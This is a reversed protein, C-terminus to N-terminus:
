GRGAETADRLLGEIADRRRPAGGNVDDAFDDRSWFWAPGDHTDMRKVKGILLGYVVVRGDRRGQIHFRKEDYLPTATKETM